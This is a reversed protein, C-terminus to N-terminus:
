PQFFTAPDDQQVFICYASCEHARSGDAYLQEEENWAGHREEPTLEDCGCTPTHMTHKGDPNLPRHVDIQDIMREIRIADENSLRDDALIGFLTERAMKPHGVDIMVM